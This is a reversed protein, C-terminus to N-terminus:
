ICIEKFSKILGDIVSYGSYQTVLTKKSVVMTINQSNCMSNLYIDLADWPMTRLNTKLQNVFSKPFIVCQCGIIKNTIIFHENFNGLDESQLYSTDLDCRGGFSIYLPKNTLPSTILSSLANKFEDINPIYSDGEFLMLYDVTSDFEMLVANKFSEYCGYHAPTLSEPPVRNHDSNNTSVVAHPRMSKTMPPRDVYIDNFHAVYPINLKCMTDRINDISLKQQDQPTDNLLLHVARIKVYSMNDDNRLLTNSKTAFLYGGTDTITEVYVTYGFNELKNIISQVQNEFTIDSFIHYEILFSNIKNFDDITMSQILDYEASEIDIKMLDVIDSNIKSLLTKCSIGDVDYKTDFRRGYNSVSSVLSNTADVYFELPGDVPVLANNLINITDGYSRKLIEIANINPELAYINSKNSVKNWIYEIWMGSNAGVDVVCNFTKDNLYKDYIKDIFFEIYNMFVPETDNDITITPRPAVPKIDITKSYILHDGSFFDVILGGIFPNSEFDIFNKPIPIIWYESNPVIVDYKASWMVARSDKDRISVTFNEIKRNVSYLIKNASSDYKVSAVSGDLLQLRKNIAYIYNQGTGYEVIVTFNKRELLQIMSDLHDTNHHEIFIQRIRKFYSNPLDDFLTGEYGEIDVKLYDIINECINDMVTKLSVTNTTYTPGVNDVNYPWHYLTLVDGDVGSMACHLVTTEPCNQQLLQILNPDPEVSYTKAGMDLAYRTSMGINAGLDLFVDNSSITLNGRILENHVYTGWYMGAAEGYNSIANIMSNDYSFSKFNKPGDLTQFTNKDLKLDLKELILSINYGNSHENLYFINSYKDYMNLYVPLNYILSPMDYGIAERIVLPSTEKDQNTGKSTFLFLDMCSYFNDVDHREGWIKVNSPLDKLIPEWYNRFNDATNGVFHFQIPQHELQRAYKLIEAQNKRPTFLGVNLVHKLQPDLGLKLLGTTRDQREKQEIDYEVIDIPINLKQYEMRQYESILAFHDPYWVKNESNFSSDHSTEILCYPRSERYLYRADSNEMFFEPIEQLHIIDPSIDEVVSQLTKGDSLSIFKDNLLLKIKDRQVVYAPAIYRYEICYVDYITCLKKMLTYLYQPMGGTSVHPSIFLVKKM